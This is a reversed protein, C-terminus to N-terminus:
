YRGRAIPGASRENIGCASGASDSDLAVSVTLGSVNWGIAGKVQASM